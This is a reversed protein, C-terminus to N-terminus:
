LFLSILTITNTQTQLTADIVLKLNDSQIIQTAIIRDAMTGINDAMILIKDAMELIRDAMVGIDDSLRLMSSLASDLTSTSALDTLAKIQESLNLNANALSSSVAALAQLATLLDDPLSLSNASEAAISNYLASVDTQYANVDTEIGSLQSSMSFATLTTTNMATLLENGELILENIDETLTSSDISAQANNAFLSLTIFLVSFFSKLPHNYIM